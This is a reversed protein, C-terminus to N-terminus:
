FGLRKEIEEPSVGTAVLAERQETRVWDPETAVLARLKNLEDGEAPLIPFMVSAVDLAAHNKLDAPLRLWLSIAFVAREGMVYGENPGTLMSLELSDFVQEMPQDTILQLGSLWLWSYSSMPKISVLTCLIERRRNNAKQESPDIQTNLDARLAASAVSPASGWAKVIEARKEPSDINAMAISFHVIGLGRAIAFGCIGIMVVATWLRIDARM